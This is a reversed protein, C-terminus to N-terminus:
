SRNVLLIVIFTALISGLLGLMGLRAGWELYGSAPNWDRYLRHVRFWCHLAYIAPLMGLLPILGILGAVFGSLSKRIATIRDM